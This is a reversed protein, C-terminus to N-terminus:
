GSTVGSAEDFFFNQTLRGTEPADGAGGLPAHYYNCGRFIILRNYRASVATDLEWLSLDAMDRHVIQREFDASNRCGHSRAVADSPPGFLRTERHQFFGTGTGPPLDPTLYVMAAWDCATDAHVKTQEGTDATILRFAGWTFRSEDKNIRNGIAAEFANHVADVGFSSASQWGPYNHAAGSRYNSELALERVSDPDKYFDDIVIIDPRV